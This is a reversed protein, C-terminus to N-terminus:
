KVKGDKKKKVPEIKLLGIYKTNINELWGIMYATYEGINLNFLDSEYDMMVDKPFDQKALDIEKVQYSSYADPNLNQAGFLSLLQAAFLNTNKGSNIAYECEKDQMFNLILSSDYIYYNNLMFFIVVNDANHIRKLKEVVKYFGDLKPKKPLEEKNPLKLGKELKKLISEAWKGLKGGKIDNSSTADAMKDYPLKKKITVNDGQTAYVPLIEFTQDYKKGENTLWKYVKNLSDKTSAIDFGSWPLSTKSDVFITYVVTKGTLTKAVNRDKAWRADIEKSSKCAFFGTVIAFYLLYKM